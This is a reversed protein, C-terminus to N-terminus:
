PLKRASASPLALAGSAMGVLLFLGLLFLFTVTMLAFFDANTSIMRLMEQAQPTPNKQASEQLSQILAARKLSITAVSFILFSFYSLTAAFAGLRAGQGRRLPGAHLPRYRTIARRAAFPLMLLLGVPFVVVCLLGTLAAVPSAIRFFHGWQIGPVRTALYPSPPPPPPPPADPGHEPASVVEQV